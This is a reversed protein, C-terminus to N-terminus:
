LPYIFVLQQADLRDFILIIEDYIYENIRNNKYLSDVEKRLNESDEIKYRIAYLNLKEGEGHSTKGMYEEMESKMKTYYMRSTLTDGEKEAYVAKVNNSIFNKTHGPKLYDEDISEIFKLSKDPQNRLYYVVLQLEIGEFYNVDKYRVMMNKIISSATDLKKDDMGHTQYTHILSAAKSVTDSGKVYRYYECSCLISAVGCIFIFKLNKM